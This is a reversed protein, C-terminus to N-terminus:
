SPIENMQTMAMAVTRQLASSEPISCDHVLHFASWVRSPCRIKPDKQDLADLSTAEQTPIVIFLLIKETRLVFQGTGVCLRHDSPGNTESYIRPM